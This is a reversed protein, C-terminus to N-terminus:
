LEANTRLKKQELISQHILTKGYKGMMFIQCLAKLLMELAGINLNKQLVLDICYSRFHSKSLNILM